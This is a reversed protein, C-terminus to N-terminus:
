PLVESRHLSPVSSPPSPRSLQQYAALANWPAAHQLRSYRERVQRDSVVIARPLRSGRALRDRWTREVIGDEKVGLRVLQDREERTPARTLLLLVAGPARMREEQWAGLPGVCSLCERPELILIAAPGRAPLLNDVSRGDALHLPADVDTGCGVGSALLLTALALRASRAVRDRAEPRRVPIATAGVSGRATRSPQM